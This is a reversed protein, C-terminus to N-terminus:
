KSGREKKLYVSRKRQKMSAARAPATARQRHVATTRGWRARAAKQAIAKREAASLNRARARGGTRGYAEAMAREVVTNTKM